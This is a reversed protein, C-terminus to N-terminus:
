NAIGARANSEIRLESLKVSAEGLMGGAVMVGDGYRGDPAAVTGRVIVNDVAGDSGEVGVGVETNNEILSSALHVSARPGSPGWRGGGGGRGLKQGYIRPAPGRVSSGAITAESGSVLIGSSHSNEVLCSHVNLSSRANTPGDIEAFIGFGQKGDPRPLTG